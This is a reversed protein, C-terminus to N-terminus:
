RNESQVLGINAAQSDTIRSYVVAGSHGDAQSGPPAPVEAHDPDRGDGRQGDAGPKSSECPAPATVAVAGPGGKGGLGRLGTKGGKGGEFSSQGDVFQKVLDASVERAIVAINGGDGGSGGAGGLGGNGGRGGNGGHVAPECVPTLKISFGINASIPFGPRGLRGPGGDGGDQGAGGVGGDQGILQFRVPGPLELSLAIFIVFPADQGRFGRNGAVGHSGPRGDAGEREGPAGPAAKGFKVPERIQGAVNRDWVVTVPSASNGTFRITRAIFVIWNRDNATRPALLLRKGREFVIENAVVVDQTLIEGPMQWKDAFGIAGITKGVFQLIEPLEASSVEVV